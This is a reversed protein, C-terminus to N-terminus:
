RGRSAPQQQDLVYLRERAYSELQPSLGACALGQRYAKQGESARGASEEAIGLGVWWAGELPRSELLRRYASAASDYAGARQSVAALLLYYDPSQAVSPAAGRTLVDLAAPDERREVLLRALSLRFSLQDPSVRVGEELLLRAQASRGGALLVGLLAERAEDLAPDAELARRLLAEGGAHDGKALRQTGQQYYQQADARTPAASPAKSVGGEPPKPLPAAVVPEAAVPAPPAVEPVVPAPPEVKPLVPVPPAVRTAEAREASKPQSVATKPPAPPTVVADTRYAELVLYGGLGGAPSHMSDRYHFSGELRLVLRLTEGRPEVKLSRVFGGPPLAPVRGAFRSREMELILFGGEQRTVSYRPAGELDAVLRLQGPLTTLRVGQVVVTPGSSVKAPAPVAVAAVTKGVVPTEKKSTEVPKAPAPKKAAVPESVPAPAAPKEPEAEAVPVMALSESPPLVETVVEEVPAPLVVEEVPLATLTEEAAPVPEVAVPEAAPSKGDYGGWLLASGAVAGLLLFLPIWLPRRRSPEEVPSVELKEPTKSADSGSGEEQRRKELDKLMQNILSM